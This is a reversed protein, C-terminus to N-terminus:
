MAWVRSDVPGIEKQSGDTSVNAKGRHHVRGVAQHRVRRDKPPPEFNEEVGRRNQKKKSPCHKSVFQDVERAFAPSRKPDGPVEEAADRKHDRREGVVWVDIVM